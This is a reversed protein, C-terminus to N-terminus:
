KKEITQYYFLKTEFPTNFNYCRRMIRSKRLFHFFIVCLNFTAVVLRPFDWDINLIIWTKFENIIKKTGLIWKVSLGFANFVYM